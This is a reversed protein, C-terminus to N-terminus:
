RIHKPQLDILGIYELLMRGLLTAEIYSVEPKNTFTNYKPVGMELDMQIHREVLGLRELHETYSEQIAALRKKDISDGIVPQIRGLINVHKSQFNQKAIITRENYYRLWIVESDNLDSLLGLLYKSNNIDADKNSMGYEVINIIYNMRETTIARSAKIFSEEILDIFLESSCLKEVMDKSLNEFKLNLLEVYRAIRDIRQNPIVNGVIESVYGGAIPIMGVTGKLIMASIDAGNNEFIESNESM